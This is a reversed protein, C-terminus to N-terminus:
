SDDGVINRRKTNFYEDIFESEGNEINDWELYNHNTNYDKIKAATQNDLTVQYQLKSYSEQLRKKNSDKRYWEYWNVGANRDPFPNNLDIPRYIFKYNTSDEEYLRNYVNVTCSDDDDFTMTWDEIGDDKNSKLVNLGSLTASVKYDGTYSLPTYYQNNIGYNPYKSNNYEVKGTGIEINSNPLFITCITTVTEGENFEGTRTCQKQILSNDLSKEGFKLSATIQEEFNEKLKDKMINPVEDYNGLKIGGDAYNWKITNYYIFGFKIGGGQYITAPTLINAITGTQEITVDARGNETNITLRGCLNKIVNSESNCQGSKTNNKDICNNETKTYEFKALVPSLVVNEDANSVSTIYDPCGNSNENGNYKNATDFELNENNKRTIEVIHKDIYEEENAEKITAQIGESDGSSSQISSCSFANPFVGASVNFQEQITAFKGKNWETTTGGKFEGHLYHTENREELYAVNQERAEDEIKVSYSKYTGSNTIENWNTYFTDFTMCNKNTCIRKLPIISIEGDKNAGFEVPFSTLFKTEYDKSKKDEGFYYLFYYYDYYKKECSEYTVKNECENKAKISPILMFIAITFISIIKVSSLAVRKM